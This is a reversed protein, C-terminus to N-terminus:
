QPVAMTIVPLGMMIVFVVALAVFGIGPLIGQTVIDGVPKKPTPRLTFEAIVAILFIILVPWGFRVFDALTGNLDIWNGAVARGLVIGVAILFAGLRIGTANDRDITVTETISTAANMLFWLIFLGLTSLLASIIVVLWGATNPDLNSGVNAGGYCLVIAILAGGVAIAAANNSREVLDDRISLGLYIFGNFALRMWAIGLFLYMLVYIFNTRVGYDGFFQLILYLFVISIIPIVYLPGRYGRPTALPKVSGLAAYWSNWLTISIIFAIGFVVWEDVSVISLDM